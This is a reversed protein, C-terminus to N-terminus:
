EVYIEGEPLKPDCALAYSNFSDDNGCIGHKKLFGEIGGEEQAAIAIVEALWTVPIPKNHFVVCSHGVDVFVVNEINTARIDVYSGGRAGEGRYANECKHKGRSM